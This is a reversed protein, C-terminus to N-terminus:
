AALLAEEYVPTMLITKAEELTADMGLMIDVSNDNGIILTTRKMRTEYWWTSAYANVIMMDIGTMGM